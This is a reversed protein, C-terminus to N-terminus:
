LAGLVFGSLFLCNAMKLGQGGLMSESGEM